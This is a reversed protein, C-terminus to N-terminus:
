GVIRILWYVTVLTWYVGILVWPPKHWHYMTVAISAATCMILCSIIATLIMSWGM